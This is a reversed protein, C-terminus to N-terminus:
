KRPFRTSLVPLPWLAGAATQGPAGCRQLDHEHAFREKPPIDPTLDGWALEMSLQRNMCGRLPDASSPIAWYFGRGAAGTYRNVHCSRKSLVLSHTKKKRKKEPSLTPSRQPQPQYQTSVAPHLCFAMELASGWTGTVWLLSLAIPWTGPNRGTLGSCRSVFGTNHVKLFPSSGRPCRGGM